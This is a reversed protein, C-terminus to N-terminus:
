APKPGKQAKKELQQCLWCKEPFGRMEKWAADWREMPVWDKHGCRLLVWAMREQPM